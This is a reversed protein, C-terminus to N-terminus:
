RGRVLTSAYSRNFSTDVARVFYRYGKLTHIKMSTGTTWGVWSRRGERYIQYRLVRVNDTSPSWAFKVYGGSYRKVVHFHRPTSPRITDAKTRISLTTSPTEKFDTDIATVTYSYATAPKRSTDKWTVQDAGVTAVVTGNRSVKYGAIGVDDTSANWTLTVTTLGASGSVPDPASPATPDSPTPTPTPTPAPTASPDPTPTPSPDPTPTPTPGASPSPSPNPDAPTTVTASSAAGANGSTDVAAVRYTYSTGLAVSTDSWTTAPANVTAVTAGDRTVRYSAVAVNDTAASWSLDVKPTTSATANLTGVGGPAVGETVKVTVGSSSVAMTTFTIGSVPDRLSKGLLLPADKLDTTAPTTDILDTAKPSGTPSATGVALRLTVGSVAPSGATFTDINGYPTRFDMDIFTGDGRPIRVLKVTGTGFYPAITYTNGPGGQVKESSSLWGLEGLQSGHNHRLANNGMTSFPDQYGKSQCNAPADIAVRTGNVACYLANAHGLGFNHGVEHTMVQSNYTNNLVSKTGNVYAIGAWTCAPTNPVIYMLNTFGSLNVGAAAAANYGLTTWNTWDCTSSTTQLTYWGYATASISMRGKSEEEYFAKLGTASTLASQVTSRSFPQATNDTFNILIVAFSKTVTAATTFDATQLQPSMDSVAATGEFTAMAGVETSAPMRRVKIDRNPRADSVRLSKGERTGTIEVVAGSLDEPTGRDFRLPVPGTRTELQFSPAPHSERFTEIYLAQLTGKLTERSAGGPQVAAVPAAFLAALALAIITQLATRRM